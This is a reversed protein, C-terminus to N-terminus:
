AARSGEAATERTYRWRAEQGRNLGRGSAQAEWAIAADKARALNVMDSLPGDPARARWMGPWEGDPQVTIGTFKSGIYLRWM